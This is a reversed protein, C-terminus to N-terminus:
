NETLQWPFPFFCFIRTISWTYLTIRCLANDRRGIEPQEKPKENRVRQEYVEAKSLSYYFFRSPLQEGGM